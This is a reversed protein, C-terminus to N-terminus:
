LRATEHSAANWNTGLFRQIENAVSLLLNQQPASLSSYIRLLQRENERTQAPQVSDAEGTVLYEVSTHLARALRVAVDASPMCSQSSVYSDLARKTIGAKAAVEKNSLGSFAIEERLRSRFNM